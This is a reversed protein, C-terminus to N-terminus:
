NPRERGCKECTPRNTENFQGCVTGEFDYPCKWYTAGGTGDTASTAAVAGAAAGGAAGAVCCCCCCNYWWDCFNNCCDCCRHHDHSNDYVCCVACCGGCSVCGGCSGGCSGCDSGGLESKEIQLISGAKINNYECILKRNILPASNFYIYQKRPKIHTSRHLQKKLEYITSGTDLTVSYGNFISYSSSSLQLTIQEGTKVNKRRSKRSKKIRKKPSDKEKSTTIIDQKM